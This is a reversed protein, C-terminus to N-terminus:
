GKIVEKLQMIVYDQEEDTLGYYLPLSIIHDYIKEANPCYIDKYGNEQYYPHRYVPIYHVNVGIGANRLKRFVDSRSQVQIVYLHWSNNCGEKQFPCIVSAMDKFAKNYREALYKRREVFRSLKKLQSLGLACQFDTIRYNYGLDLQQYYWDGEHDTMMSPDRTIGHNRFLKLKRYFGEDDTTILGGEGSTIHKVPHLSFITMDSVSGIRRGKYDAGMAHAADEILALHYDEAIKRLEDLECPQGTYDVAIIARTKKTIKRVVDAPDINYTDPKVDAFVPMGKCYLICNASAAFTLPTTIVEDGEKIGAAMCALHLAATGSSVAVAYKAGTYECIANEFKEIQPGTTIYDSKLVNEVEEIDEEDIFQRSYPIYM